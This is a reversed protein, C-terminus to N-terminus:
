HMKAIAESATEMAKIALTLSLMRDADASGRAIAELDQLARSAAALKAKAQTVASAWEDVNQLAITANQYYNQGDVRVAVYSPLTEDSEDEKVVRVSKILHRAQWTRYEEAAVKDRWEFVPHLPAEKPRSADVVAKPELKGEHESRVRELEAAAIDPDVKFTKGPRFEHKSMTLDGKSHNRAQWATGHRASGLRATGLGAQWATGLRATGRRATGHWAQRAAGQREEGRRALGQRAMGAAGQWAQGLGAEGRRFMGAMGQWAVGRGATGHWAAGQGAQWAMGHWANGRRAQRAKGAKGHRARGLRAMGQLAQRAEGLGTSLTV